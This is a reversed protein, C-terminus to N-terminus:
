SQRQDPLGGYHGTETCDKDVATLDKWGDQSNNTHPTTGEKAPHAGEKCRLYYNFM